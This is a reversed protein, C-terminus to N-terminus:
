DIIKGKAGERPNRSKEKRLKEIEHVPWQVLQKGSTSLWLVRPISQLGSWGKKIDDARTDAETLWAWLIRRRKGGDFFPKSAYFNGGYDYRRDTNGEMFDAGEVEFENTEANYHGLVYHDHDLFSAKLVFKNNRTDLYNEVGNKGNIKAPFFRSM